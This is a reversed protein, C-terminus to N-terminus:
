QQLKAIVIRASSPPGGEASAEPKPDSTGYGLATLRAADVGASILAKKIVAARHESLVQSAGAEAPSPLADVHAQIVYNGPTDKLVQALNRVVNRGNADLVDTNGIFRVMRLEAYGSGVATKLNDSNVGGKLASPMLATGVSGVKSQAASTVEAAAGSVLNSGTQATADVVQTASNALNEATQSTVQSATEKLHQGLKKFFGGGKKKETPQTTLQVPAGTTASVPTPTVGGPTAVQQNPQTASQGAAVSAAAQGGGAAAGYAQGQAAGPAGGAASPSAGAGAAAAQNAAGASGQGAVAGPAGGAQQGAGAGAAAGPNAQAGYAQGQPAGGAAEVGPQAAGGAAPASQGAGAAAGAAQNPAQGYSQNPQGGNPAGGAQQSAGAAAAAQNPSVAGQAQPPNTPAQPPVYPQSPTAAASAPEGAGQLAVEMTQQATIGPVVEAASLRKAPYYAVVLASTATATRACLFRPRTPDSWAFADPSTTTLSLDFDQWDVQKGNPRVPTGGNADKVVVEIATCQGLPLPNQMARMSVTWQASAEATPAGLLVVSIFALQLPRSLQSFPM